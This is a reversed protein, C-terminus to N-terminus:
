CSPKPLGFEKTPNGTSIILVESERLVLVKIRCEWESTWTVVYVKASDSAVSRELFKFQSERLVSKLQIRLEPDLPSVSMKNERIIKNADRESIKGSIVIPGFPAILQIKAQEIKIDERQTASKIFRREIDKNTSPTHMVLCAIFTTLKLM